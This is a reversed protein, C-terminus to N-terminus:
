QTLTLTNPNCALVVQNAKKDPNQTISSLDEDNCLFYKVSQAMERFQSFITKLILKNKSIHLLIIM